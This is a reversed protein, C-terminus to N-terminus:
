ETRKKEYYVCIHNKGRYAARAKFPLRETGKEGIDAWEGSIWSGGPCDKRRKWYLMM